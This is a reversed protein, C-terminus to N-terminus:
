LDMHLIADATMETLQQTCQLAELSRQATALEDAAFRVASRRSLPFLIITDNM